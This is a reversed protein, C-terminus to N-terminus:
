YNERKFYTAAVNGDSKPLLTVSWEHGFPPIGNKNLNKLNFKM